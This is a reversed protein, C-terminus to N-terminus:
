FASGSLYHQLLAVKNHAKRAVVKQLHENCETEYGKMSCARGAIGYYEQDRQLSFVDRTKHTVLYKTISM